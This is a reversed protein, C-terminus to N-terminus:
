YGPTNHLHVYVMNGEARFHDRQFDTLTGHCLRLACQACLSVPEDMDDESDRGIDGASENEVDSEYDCSSDNLDSEFGGELGNELEAMQLTPHM